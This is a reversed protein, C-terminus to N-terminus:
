NRYDHKMWYMDFKVSSSSPANTNNYLKFDIHKIHLFGIRKINEVGNAVQGKANYYVVMIYADIDASKNTGVPFMGSAFVNNNISQKVAEASINGIKKNVVDIPFTTEDIKELTGHKMQDIVAKHEAIAPDLYIFALCPTGYCNGKNGTVRYEDASNNLTYFNRLQSNSGAPTNIQLTGATVGSFFFYPKVSNYEEATVNPQNKGKCTNAQYQYSIPDVATRWMSNAYVMGTEPSFFSSLEEVDRGQGYIVRDKWFYVFPVNVKFADTLLKSEIGDFYTISLSTVNNGDVFKASNPVVFKLTSETQLSITCEENGVYVKNIKNLYDGNLTVEDGVSNVGFQTTTVIPQYRKVNVMPLLNTATEKNSTGDYYRFTIHANDAEVYPVSFVIENDTKSIITAEHEVTGGDATFLVASIVNMHEGSILMKNGMEVVTQVSTVEALPAPYEVVFDSESVGEGESNSLKIKGTLAEEPVKITLCTNSQREVIECEKEGLAASSVSNLYSGIIVVNSGISGQGPSFSEIIPTSEITENMSLKDCSAFLVVALLWIFVYKIQKM